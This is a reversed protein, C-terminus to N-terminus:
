CRPNQIAILNNRIELFTRVAFCFNITFTVYNTYCQCYPNMAPLICLPINPIYFYTLLENSFKMRNRWKVKTVETSFKVWFTVNVVIIWFRFVLHYGKPICDECVEVAPPPTNQTLESKFEPFFTLTKWQLPTNQTLESKFEPFFTLTKWKPPPHEPYAWIQVWSLFNSNKMKLPSPHEPYPWVQVRPVIEIKPPPTNQFWIRSCPHEVSIQDFIEPLRAPQHMVSLIECVVYTSVLSNISWYVLFIFGFELLETPSLALLKSLPKFFHLSEQTQSTLM